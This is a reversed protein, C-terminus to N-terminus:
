RETTPTNGFSLQFQYCNSCCITYLLHSWFVLVQTATGLFIGSCRIHIVCPYTQLTLHHLLFETMWRFIPIAHVNVSNWFRPWEFRWCAFWTFTTLTWHRFRRWSAIWCSIEDLNCFILSGPWVTWPINRSVFLSSLKLWLSSTLWSPPRCCKSM